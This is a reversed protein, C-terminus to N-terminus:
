HQENTREKSFPSEQAFEWLANDMLDDRNCDSIFRSFHHTRRAGMEELRLDQM